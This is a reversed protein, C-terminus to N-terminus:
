LRPTFRHKLEADGSGVVSFRKVISLLVGRLFCLMVTEKGYLVVGDSELVVCFLPTSLWRSTNPLSLCSGLPEPAQPCFSILPLFLSFPPSCSPLSPSVHLKYDARGEESLCMDM